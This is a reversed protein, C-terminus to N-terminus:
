RALIVSTGLDSVRPFGNELCFATLAAPDTAIARWGPLYGPEGLPLRTLLIADVRHRRMIAKLEAPDSPLQLARRRAYWVIQGPLNTAVLGRPGAARAAAALEPWDKVPLGGPYACAGQPTSLWWAAYAFVASFYVLRLVPRLGAAGRVALMAAAPAFWLYYRGGVRGGLEEFRLFCFVFVQVALMAAYFAAGEFAASEERRKRWLQVAGWAAAPWVLHFQWLGPWSKLHMGLLSFWKGALLLPHQLSDHLTFVRYHFWPEIDTLVHHALNWPTTPQTIGGYWRLNYALGPAAALIFGGFWCLLGATGHGRENEGGRKYIWAAFLPLWIIFNNRYLWALGAIIGTIFWLWKPVGRGRLSLPLGAAAFTLAAFGLDPLGWLIFGRQFAPCLAVILGAALAAGSGWLLGAAFATASALVALSLISLILPAADTDGWLAQAAATLWAHLPFRDLVPNYEGFPIGREDFLALVAPYIMRTSLGEGARVNRAIEAYHCFEYTLGGEFNRHASWASLAASVLFVAIVAATLAASRNNGTM